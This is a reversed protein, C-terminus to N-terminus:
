ARPHAPTYAARLRDRSVHTYRQTTAVDTHGLLEQVSACTPGAMSSIRPSAHPAARASPHADAFPPRPHPSRRPRSGGGGSTASCPRAARRRRRRRPPHGAVGLADVAPESLPVRREKGGKGWVVLAGADLQISDLDLACLEAVRVGSGYLLELVADDRRRRWDPEDEPPEADLLQASSAATSCGRSDARPGVTHLGLTPDVAVAGNRVSWRFYRRLAAAKRAISRKAFERTTLYAVYRRLM